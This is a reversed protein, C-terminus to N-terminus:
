DLLFPCIGVKMDSWQSSTVGKMIAEVLRIFLQHDKNLSQFVEATMNEIVSLLVPNEIRVFDVVPLLWVDEQIEKGIPGEFSSPGTTPGDYHVFLKNFPLEAHHNFCILRQLPHGLLEELEAIAGHRWGTMKRTGDTLACKM